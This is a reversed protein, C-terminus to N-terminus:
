VVRKGPLGAREASKGLSGLAEMLQQAVYELGGRLVLGGQIGRCRWRQM